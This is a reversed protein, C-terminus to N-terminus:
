CGTSHRRHILFILHGRLVSKKVVDSSVMIIELRAGIVDFFQDARNEKAVFSDQEPARKEYLVTNKNNTKQAYLTGSFFCIILFCLVAPCRSNNKLQM